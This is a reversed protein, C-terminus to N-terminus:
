GKFRYLRSTCLSCRALVFAPPLSAADKEIRAYHVEYDVRTQRLTGMTQGFGRLHLHRLATIVEGVGGIGAIGAFQFGKDPSSSCKNDRPYYQVHDRM